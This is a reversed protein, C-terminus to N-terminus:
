FHTALASHPESSRLLHILSVLPFPARRRLLHNLGILSPHNLEDQILVDLDTQLVNHLWRFAFNDGLHRWYSRWPLSFITVRHGAKRWYNVLQRNYLYGGSIMDLHGYIVLGIHM